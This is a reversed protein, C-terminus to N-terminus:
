IVKLQVGFREELFDSRHELGLRKHWVGNGALYACHDAGNSLANRRVDCVVGHLCDVVVDKFFM